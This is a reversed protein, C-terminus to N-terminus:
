HSLEPQKEFTDQAIHDFIKKVGKGKLASCEFFSYGNANAFRQGEKSPICSDPSADAQSCSECPSREFIDALYAFPM